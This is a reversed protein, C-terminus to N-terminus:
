FIEFINELKNEETLSKCYQKCNRGFDLWPEDIELQYFLKIFSKDM